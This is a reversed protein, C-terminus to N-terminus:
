GPLDAPDLVRLDPVGRFRGDHSLFTDCGVLLSTAGHIADPLKLSRHMARLRASARLVGRSM